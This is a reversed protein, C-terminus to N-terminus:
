ESKRGVGKNKKMEYMKKDAIKCAYRISVDKRKRYTGYCCEWKMTSLVIIPDEIIKRFLNM